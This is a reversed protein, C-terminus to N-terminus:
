EEGFSLITRAKEEMTEGDFQYSRLKKFLVDILYENYDYVQNPWLMTNHYTSNYNDFLTQIFHEFSGVVVVPAGNKNMTDCINRLDDIMYDFDLDSNFKFKLIHREGNKTNIKKIEIEMPNVKEFTNQCVDDSTTIYVRGYESVGNKTKNRYFDSVSKINFVNKIKDVCEKMESEKGELRINM